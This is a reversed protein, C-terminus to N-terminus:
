PHALFVRGPAPGAWHVLWEGVARAYRGLRQPSRLLTAGDPRREVEVAAPAFRPAMRIRRPRSRPSAIRSTTNPGRLRCFEILRYFRRRAADRTRWLLTM